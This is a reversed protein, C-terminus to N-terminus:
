TINFYNDIALAASLVSAIAVITGALSYKRYSVIKDSPTPCALAEITIGIYHGFLLGIIVFVFHNFALSILIGIFIGVIIGFLIGDGRNPRLGPRMSTRNNCALASTKIIAFIVLILFYNNM